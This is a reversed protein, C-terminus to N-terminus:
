VVKKVKKGREEVIKSMIRPCILVGLLKVKDKKTLYPNRVGAIWNKKLYSLVENYIRDNERDYNSPCCLLFSIHQFIVFREAQQSLSPYCKDTYERIKISNGVMDHVAKGFNRSISGERQLYCYGFSSIYLVSDIKGILSVMFLVDENLIGELFRKDGIVERPFLRTCVSGCDNHCLINCLLQEGTVETDCWGRSREIDGEESVEYLGTTSISNKTKLVSLLNEYMTDIIWDDGDLFGIFDGHCVDLGANRASSLGGNKKHIVQVRCDICAYKDCKQSSGDTSGDDVLIIELHKYTQDLISQVCRDLYLEVNYVSVIVSILPAM